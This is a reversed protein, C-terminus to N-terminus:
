AIARAKRQANFYKVLLTIGTILSVLLVISLPIGIANYIEEQQDIAKNKQEVIANIRNDSQVKKQADYTKDIKSTSGNTTIQLECIDSTKMPKGDCTVPADPQPDAIGESTVHKLQNGGMSLPVEALISIIAIALAILGWTLLKRAQAGGTQAQM